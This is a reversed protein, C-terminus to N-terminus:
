KNIQGDDKKFKESEEKYSLKATDYSSLQRYRYRVIFGIQTPNSHAISNLEENLCYIMVGLTSFVSTRIVIKKLISFPALLNFGSVTVGPVVFIAVFAKKSHGFFPEQFNNLFLKFLEKYQYAKFKM